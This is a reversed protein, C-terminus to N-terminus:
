IMNLLELRLSIIRFETTDATAGPRFYLDLGRACAGRDVKEDYGTKESHSRSARRVARYGLSNVRLHERRSGTRSLQQSWGEYEERLM